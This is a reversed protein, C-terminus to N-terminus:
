FGAARLYELTDCFSSNKEGGFAEWQEQALKDSEGMDDFVEDNPDDPRRIGHPFKFFGDKDWHAKILRLKEANKGFYMEEHKNSSIDRDPFNIFAAQGNLSSPRLAAKVEKHFERMSGELWKDKWQITVYMHYVAQRWFFATEEPKKKAAEGGSHIWTAQFSADDGDKFRERFTKMLDAIIKTAKKIEARGEDSENNFIYSSFLEYTKNEPYARETEELWQNVLSEYLFRTSKESMARRMLQERLHKTMGEGKLGRDINIDYRSKGGDFAITFRVADHKKETDCIWTSDITMNNSWPATYFGNMVDLFDPTLGGDPTWIYKGAVVEKDPSKLKKVHMKMQVVVGFNGGGAGRLAWFLRGEDSNPDDTDRVTVLKGDATVLTAEALTDCGMGLSRTFPGLGGGLTFGSVGVTPCRGGNIIYGNHRGNVLTGYVHGWQCGSDMTVIKADMDLSTKQMGRLDLSIGSFATSHGAYSHGNCKITIDVDSDRATRVIDQVQDASQPRVVCEPRSFRYMRNSTAISRDYEPQGPVFVPVGRSEFMQATASRLLPAAVTRLLRLSAHM